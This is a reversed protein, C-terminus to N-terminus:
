SLKMLYYQDRLVLYNDIVYTIGNTQITVLIYENLQNYGSMQDM